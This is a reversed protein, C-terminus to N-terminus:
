AEKVAARRAAPTEVAHGVMRDRAAGTWKAGSDFARSRALLTLMPKTFLFVIFLDALTSLGLTFAFGRVDGVSLLYLVLAALISVTDASLITRRARPWAREVASRLRRGERSEDRIREFFVVFSDATIGVAVIFGAIGALTLTYGLAHGLVTTAGYLLVGSLMLSALAVLGLGRYYLLLYIIVLGLGIAGAILGGRLQDSGLTPSVAEISSKDFRLPLAGYKLVNALDGASKQNFSGTIQANGGLIPEQIRPASMVQGDLVIAVANCGTPPTCNPVDPLKNAQTTLNAWAKSGSGNFSLTVMWGQTQDLASDAKTVQTGQVQAPALLYKTTGDNSCAVMYQNPADDGGTPNPNTSCDLGVYAAEVAPLSTSAYAKATSAPASPAPSASRSASPTAKASPSPTAKLLASTLPRKKTSTSASPKASASAKPSASASPTPTASTSAKPTSGAGEALVLRFRLLATQGVLGAVQDRGKGPVSVIINDNGQTNVQAESVGLGNVRQRIIDVARNLASKTVKGGAFPKATLIVQTGGRLDLGLKPSQSPGLAVWIYLAAVVVAVIALSRGPRPVNPAAM